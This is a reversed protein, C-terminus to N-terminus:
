CRPVPKWGTDESRDEIRPGMGVWPWGTLGAAALNRLVYGVAHRLDDEDRVLHDYSEAQWLTGSRGLVRNACTATFSKWSHLISPLTHGHMPAVVAHVHNPMVCWVILHYREGDFRLMADRVLQAVRPDRLACAGHGADLYREIREGHLEDLREREYRTLERGLSEARKITGERERIIACLVPAPLSDALRFTVSYTGGDRTWHPLYAGHRKQVGPSIQSSNRPKFRNEPEPM